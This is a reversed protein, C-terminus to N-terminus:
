ALIARVPTRTPRFESAVIMVPHKGPPLGDSGSYRPTFQGANFQMAVM